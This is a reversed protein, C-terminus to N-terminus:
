ITGIRFKPWRDLGNDFDFRTAIVNHQDTQLFRKLLAIVDLRRQFKLFGAFDGNIKREFADAGLGASHLHLVAM